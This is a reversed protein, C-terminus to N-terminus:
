RNKWDLPEADEENEGFVEIVHNKWFLQQEDRTEKQNSHCILDYFFSSTMGLNVASEPDMEGSHFIIVKWAENFLCPNFDANYFENTRKM